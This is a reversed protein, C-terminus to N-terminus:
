RSRTSKRVTASVFVAEGFEKEDLVKLKKVVFRYFRYERAPDDAKLATKWSSYAAFRRGYLQEAKRAQSGRSQSCTGFLQLGRDPGVWQQSSSFVTMAMFSNASLNRCHLSSPHSLFYLGLGDSYSFYATNINPVNEGTITAISCLINDKLIRVVSRRVRDESLGKTVIRRGRVNRARINMLRAHGM